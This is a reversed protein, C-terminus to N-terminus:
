ARWRQGGRERAARAQEQLDKVDARLEEYEPLSILDFESRKTEAECAKIYNGLLQNACHAKATNLKGAVVDLHMQWLRGKAARIEALGGRSNRRGARSNDKRRRETQAPDHAPCHTAGAPVVGKCQTGARTISPCNAM